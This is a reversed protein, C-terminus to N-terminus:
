AATESQEADAVGPLIEIDKELYLMVSTSIAAELSPQQKSHRHQVTITVEPGEEKLKIVINDIVAGKITAFEEDSKADKLTMVWLDAITGTKLSDWFATKFVTDELQTNFKKFLGVIAEGVFKTVIVADGKTKDEKILSQVLRCQLSIGSKASM